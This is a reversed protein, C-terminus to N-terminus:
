YTDFITTNLILIPIWILLVAIFIALLFGCFLNGVYAAPHNQYSYCTEAYDANVQVDHTFEYTSSKMNTCKDQEYEFDVHGFILGGVSFMFTLIIGIVTTIKQNNNM